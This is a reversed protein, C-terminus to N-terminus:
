PVATPELEQRDFHNLANLLEENPSTRYLMYLSDRARTMAVFLQALQLEKLETFENESQGPRRPEPFVSESMDLLFVMKFELGKARHFTGVKVSESPRGDWDKLNQCDLGAGALGKLAEEVIQNKPAFVGVDGLAMGRAGCFRGIREAVLEIQRAVNLPGLLIPKEGDRTTTADADARPYEDGLDNVTGSRTCATATDIVSRPNRYNLRLVSSNGKVDIGAQALTFGGPFIKQGADGVLLLRDRLDRTETGQTLALVLQLGALTLDQSEDVIAARYRPATEQRATELASQVVDEFDVIDSKALFQDYTERLRWAQERMSSSFPVRRGTRQITLYEELSNIGRGKIVYKVEGQLYTFTISHRHLPTGPRVVQHRAKRFAEEAKRPDVKPQQGAEQCIRVALKDINIFDVAGPVSTPIRSYLHELVPPLTKIYTTFLIPAADHVASGTLRKASAAARHLAVVTKGTGASGSVRAPGNFRRDVLARQDPHLFIMWDEIPSEVLRRFEDPTLVSSLGALAGREVIARRFREDVRTEDEVLQGQQWEHPDTESLEVVLDFTADDIDPWVELLNEATAERLMKIQRDDFGSETLESSGWHELISREDDVPRRTTMVEGRPASRTESGSGAPKREILCPSGVHPVVFSSRNALEYVEDHHGAYILVSTTGQRALLIRLKESARISWLRKRGAGSLLELNLSPTNPDETYKEVARVVRRADATELKKLSECYRRDLAVDM